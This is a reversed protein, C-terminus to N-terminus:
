EVSTLHLAYALLCFGFWLYKCCYCFSYVYANSSGVLLAPFFYVFSIRTFVFPRSFLSLRCSIQLYSSFHTHLYFKDPLNRAPLVFYSFCAFRLYWSSLKALTLYISISKNILTLLAKIQQQKRLNKKKKTIKITSWYINVASIIEITKARNSFAHIFM